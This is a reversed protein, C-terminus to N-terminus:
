QILDHPDGDGLVQAKRCARRRVSSKKRFQSIASAGNKRM